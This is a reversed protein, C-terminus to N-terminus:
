HGPSARLARTHRQCVGGRGAHHQGKPSAEGMARTALNMGVSERCQAGERGAGAGVKNALIDCFESKPVVYPFSGM